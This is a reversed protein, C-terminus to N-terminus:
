LNNSIELGKGLSVKKNIKEGSKLRDAIEQPLVNLLLAESRDEEAKLLRYALDKQGVFYYLLVFAIASVGGLNLVYFVIILGQPLHNSHNVYPQIFGSLILLGLYAALWRPSQKYKAFLLAGISSIFSWLIVASSNIYGGLAMMLLFPLVLILVLQSISFFEYRRTFRYYIISLFSIIGYALPIIGAPEQYLLYIIGWLLGVVVFMFSGIVLVSKKLQIDPGDDLRSGFTTIFSFPTRGPHTAM